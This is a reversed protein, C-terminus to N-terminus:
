IENIIGDIHRLNGNDDFIPKCIECISKIVGDKTRIQYKLNIPKKSDKLNQFEKSIDSKNNELILKSLFLPENVNLKDLEYGTMEEIMDNFLTIEYSGNGTYYARYVIGSINELINKYIETENLIKQKKHSEIAMEITFKLENDHFPKNMYRFAKTSKALEITDIDRHVSLYIVPVDFKEHIIKTTEIGNMKGALEIDMLILDPKLEFVHDLAEEGSRFSGVVEYGFSTLHLTTGLRLIEEDEVVMIRHGPM